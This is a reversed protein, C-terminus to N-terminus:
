YGKKIADVMMSTIWDVIHFDRESLAAPILGGEWPKVVVIPKNWMKAYKLEFDLWESSRSYMGALMVVADVPRIQTIISERLAEKNEPDIRGTNNISCNIFNFNKAGRLYEILKLYEANYNWAHSIFIRYTRNDAM